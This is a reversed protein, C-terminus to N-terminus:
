AALVENNTALEQASTEESEEAKKIEISILEEAETIPEDNNESFVDTKQQLEITPTIGSLVVPTLEIEKGIQSWPNFTAAVFNRNSETKDGRTILLLPLAITFLCFIALFFNAIAMEQGPEFVALLM